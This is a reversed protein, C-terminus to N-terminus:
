KMMQELSFIPLYMGIVITGILGAMVFLMLPEVLAVLMRLQRDLETEYTNSLRVLEKDLRGTEEAIAVVEIVSSPVLGRASGLSRALPSGRQVEEIAHAVTDALTQNGIAEKAVRLSAVLPVGAGLLAGLLRTFRVLAFTAVVRGLVPTRLIIQEIRRRGTESAATRYFLMGGIGGVALVFLGYRTVLHSAALILLTLTPLSGGLHHFMKSFTPIFFVLLFSLVGVALVILVCPYVLAAKVKGTLDRERMRFDAIQALVLELFGGAEGARVMAIYIGSFVRPHKALADALATGGVVDDHIAGWLQRPGPAAAERRLLQLAKALPVGGALLNSLERTFGEVEARKVSAGRAVPPRVKLRGGGTQEEIHVPHLGQGVVAAIAAGRSEAPVTGSTTRGNATLATYNFLAM